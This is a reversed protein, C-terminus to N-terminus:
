IKKVWKDYIIKNFSKCFNFYDDINDISCIKNKKDIKENNSNTSLIKYSYVTYLGDKITLNGVINIDDKINEKYNEKLNINNNNNNAKKEKCISFNINILLNLLTIILILKKSKKKLNIFIHSHM